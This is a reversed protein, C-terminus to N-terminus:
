KEDKHFMGKVKEAAGKSADKAADEVKGEANKAFDGIGDGASKAMDEVKDKANGMIDKLDM